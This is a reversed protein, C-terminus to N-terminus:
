ESRLRFILCFSQELPVGESYRFSGFPHSQWGGSRGFQIELIFTHEIYNLM